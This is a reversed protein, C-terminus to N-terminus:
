VVSKRDTLSLAGNLHSQFFAGNLAPYFGATFATDSGTLTFSADLVFRGVTGKEGPYVSILPGQCPDVLAKAYLGHPTIPAPRPRRAQRRATPRSNTKKTNKAM